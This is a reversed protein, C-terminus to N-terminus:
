AFHSTEECEDVVEGAPATAPSPGNIATTPQKTRFSIRKTSPYIQLDTIDENSGDSRSVKLTLAEIQTEVDDALTFMQGEVFQEFEEFLQRLPQPLGTVDVTGSFRGELAKVNLAALPKGTGDLL